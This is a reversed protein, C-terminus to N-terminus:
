VVADMDGLTHAAGFTVTRDAVHRQGAFRAREVHAPAQGTVTVRRWMQAREVLDEIGM